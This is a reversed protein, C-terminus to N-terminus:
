SVAEKARLWGDMNEELDSAPIFLDGFASMKDSCVIFEANGQCDWGTTDCNGTLYLFRGDKMRLLAGLSTEAYDGNRRWSWIIEEANALHLDDPLGALAAADILDSDNLADITPESM